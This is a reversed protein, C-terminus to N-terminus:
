QYSTKIKIDIDIPDGNFGQKAKDVCSKLVPCDLSLKVLDYILFKEKYSREEDKLVVTIESTLNM